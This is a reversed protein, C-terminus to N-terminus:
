RCKKLYEDLGSVTYIKSKETLQYTDSEATITLTDDNSFNTTKSFRMNLRVQILLKEKIM